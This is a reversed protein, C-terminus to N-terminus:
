IESCLYQLNISGGPILVMDAWAEFITTSANTTSAESTTATEGFTRADQITLKTSLLGTQFSVGLRTRQTAVALPDEAKLLPQSFGDKVEVRPRFEGDVTVTQATVGCVSSLATAFM